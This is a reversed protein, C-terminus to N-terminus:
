SIKIGCRTVMYSCFATYPGRDATKPDSIHNHSNDGNTVDDSDPKGSWCGNSDQRYWHFDHGPWLVLAVYWGQGETLPNTFNPSAVLGDSVAGAMVSGPDTCNNEQTFLHGSAKGPQAFTNTIRNNAYNYCNNNDATGSGQWWPKTDFPPADKAQCLPCTGLPQRLIIGEHAIALQLEREVHEQIDPSLQKRNLSFLWKELERDDTLYTANHRGPDVIGAHIYTTTPDGISQVKFGRYGLGGLAGLPKLNSTRATSRIRSVRDHFENAASDPLVWVPNPRGSFIKMTVTLPM